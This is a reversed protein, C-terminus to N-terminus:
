KEDIVANKQKVQSAREMLEELSHPKFLKVETRIEEALTNMFTTQQKKNSLGDVVISLM